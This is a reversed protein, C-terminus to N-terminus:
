FLLEGQMEYHQAKLEYRLLIRKAKDPIYAAEYNEGAFAKVSDLCDFQLILFFEVEEENHKTSINVKELGDVGMKKVEPFVQNILMNEYIPANQITTWGKWTRLIKSNDDM